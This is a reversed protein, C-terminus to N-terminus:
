QHEVYYGGLPMGEGYHLADGLVSCHSKLIHQIIDPALGYEYCIMAVFASIHPAAMSTGDMFGLYDPAPVYSLINVGPACVDVEDGYNSFDAVAGSEDIAGVTICRTIHAPCADIDDIMTSDNGASVIVNIGRTIAQDSYYEIYDDDDCPGGLSMNIVRVDEPSTYAYKLGLTIASTSALLSQGDETEHFVNVPLVDINLGQTCDIITGSVHTGHSGLDRSCIGSYVVDTGDLIRDETESNRECGTDLVAVTIHRDSYTDHLYAAYKDMEMAIAGWTYYDYGSYYSHYTPITAISTSSAAATPTKTADLYKDITVSAINEQKKLYEYCRVAEDHDTFQIITMDEDSIIEAIDFDSIDLSGGKYVAMVRDTPVNGNTMDDTDYKERIKLLMKTYEDIDVPEQLVTDDPLVMSDNKLSHNKFLIFIVLLGIIVAIATLCILIIKKQKSKKLSKLYADAEPSGAEAAKQYWIYSLNTNRAVAWGYEFMQAMALCAPPYGQKALLEMLYISEVNADGIVAHILCEDAKLFDAYLKESDQNDQYASFDINDSKVWTKRKKDYM